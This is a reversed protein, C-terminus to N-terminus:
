NLLGVLKINFATNLLSLPRVLSCGYWIVMGALIPDVKRRWWTAQGNAWSWKYPKLDHFIELLLWSSMKSFSHSPQYPIAFM